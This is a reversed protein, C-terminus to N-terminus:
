PVAYETCRANNWATYLYSSILVILEHVFSQLVMSVYGLSACQFLICIVKNEFISLLVLCNGTSM